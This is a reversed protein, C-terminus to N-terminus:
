IEDYIMRETENAKRLSIIRINEGRPSWVLIHLREHIFGMTIFRQEDYNHRSDEVTFSTSQDM